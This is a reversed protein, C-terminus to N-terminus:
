CCGCPSRRACRRTPTTPCSRASRPRRLLAQGGRRAPRDRRRHLEQRDLRHEAPHGADDPRRLRPQGQRLRPPLLRPRGQGAAGRRRVRRDPRLRRDAGRGRARGGGAGAAEPRARRPLHGQDFRRHPLGAGRAQGPEGDPLLRARHADLPDAGPDVRTGRRGNTGARARADGHLHARAHLRSGGGSIRGAGQSLIDAGRVARLRGPRRHQDDLDARRRPALPGAFAPRRRSSGSRGPAPRRDRGGAVVDYAHTPRWRERRLGLGDRRAADQVAM